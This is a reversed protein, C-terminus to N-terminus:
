DAANGHRGIEDAAALPIIGLRAQVRALAVEVELYCQVRTQDAWVERMADTSFLGSFVASDLASATTM